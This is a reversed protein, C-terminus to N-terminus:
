SEMAIRISWFIIMHVMSVIRYSAYRIPWQFCENRKKKENQKM